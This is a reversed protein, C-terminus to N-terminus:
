RIQLARLIAALEEKGINGSATSMMAPYLKEGADSLSIGNLELFVLRTPM